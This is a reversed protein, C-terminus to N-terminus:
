MCDLSGFTHENGNEDFITVETDEVDDIDGLSIDDNDLRTYIEQAAEYPSYAKAKVKIFGQISLIGEYVRGDDAKLRKEWKEAEKKSSFESGDETRYIIEM